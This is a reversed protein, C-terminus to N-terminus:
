KMSAILDLYGVNGSQQFDRGLVGGLYCHGFVNLRRNITVVVVDGRRAVRTGDYLPQSGVGAEFGGGHFWLMVPRRANDLGPAFVNVRLCDDSMPVRSDALRGKAQPSQDGFEFADKIGSWKPPPAPPMFRLPGAAAAAYRMGKFATVGNSQVVGRVRGQATEVLPEGSKQALTPGSACATATLAFGGTLLGRRNLQM